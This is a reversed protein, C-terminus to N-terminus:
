FGGYTEYAGNDDIEDEYPMSLAEEEMAKEIFYISTGKECKMIAAFENVLREESWAPHKHVLHSAEELYSKMAGM